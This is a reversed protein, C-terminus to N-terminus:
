GFNQEIGCHCCMAAEESIFFHKCGCQCEWLIDPTCLGKYVGKVLKCGPCELALTGIPSVAIWEHQCHLCLAEGSLHPQKAFIDIIEAVM